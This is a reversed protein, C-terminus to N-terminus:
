SNTYLYCIALAMGFTNFLFHLAMSATLRRTLYYLYGFTLALPILAVPDPVSIIGLREFAWNTFFMLAYVSPVIAMCCMIGYKVDSQITSLSGFVSRFSIKKLLFLYSFCLIPYITWGIGSAYIVYRIQEVSMQGSEESRAHSFSFFLAPLTISIVPVLWQATRKGRIFRRCRFARLATELWGQFCGRFLFEENLPALVCGMYLILLVTAAQGDEKLLRFLFHSNDSVQKTQEDEATHLVFPEPPAEESKANNTTHSSDAQSKEEKELPYAANLSTFCVVPLTYFM